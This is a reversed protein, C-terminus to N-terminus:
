PQHIWVVDGGDHGSEAIVRRQPSQGAAGVVREQLLPFLEATTFVDNPPNALLDLFVRAFASHGSGGVDKVPELSGSTLLLRSRRTVLQQLYDSRSQGRARPMPELSRTLAGSYCSDSVVLVSRARTRKVAARITDASIWKTLRTPDADSPLWYAEDLGEPIAGHGGYYIVVQDDPRAWRVVHELADQLDDRTPDKLVLSRAEAGDGLRTTFAYSGELAAVVGDVDALPTSLDDIGVHDYNQVGIVLAIRRGNGLLEAPDAKRQLRVVRSATEYDAFVATIPVVREGVEDGMEVSATFRGRSDLTAALAGVMVTRLGRSPSVAGEIQVHERHIIALDGNPAPAGITIEVGGTAAEGPVIRAEPDSVQIVPDQDHRLEIMTERLTQSVRESLQRLTVVEPDRLATVVTFTLAGMQGLPTTIEWAVQDPWSAFMAAFGASRPGPVFPDTHPLPNPSWVREPSRAALDIGHCSDVVLLPSAGRRRASTVWAQLDASTLTGSLDCDEDICPGGDAFLLQTARQGADTWPPEVGSGAYHFVLRDGCRLETLMRTLAEVVPARTAEQGIFTTTTVGRQELAAAMLRVDHAPAELKLLGGAVTDVGVSLGAAAPPRDVPCPEGALEAWQSLTDHDLAHRFSQMRREVPDIERRPALEGYVGRDLGAHATLLSLLLLARM